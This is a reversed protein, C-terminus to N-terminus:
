IRRKLVSVDCPIQQWRDGVTCVVLHAQVHFIEDLSLMDTASKYCALLFAEFKPCFEKPQLQLNIETRM